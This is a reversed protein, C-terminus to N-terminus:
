EGLKEFERDLKYRNSTVYKELRQLRVDLDRFRYRVNALTDHPSSRVQRRISRVEREVPDNYDPEPGTHGRVPLLMGLVFVRHLHDSLCLVGRGRRDRAHRHCRLWLVRRYRRLRRLDHRAASQPVAQQDFGARTTSENVAQKELGSSRQRSDDRARERSKAHSPERELSGRADQHEDDSLGKTAKWKTTYHMIVVFPVVVTMFVIALVFIATTMNM